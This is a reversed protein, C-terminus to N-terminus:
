KEYNRDKWKKYLTIQNCKEEEGVYKLDVLAEVGSEIHFKYIIGDRLVVVDKPANSMKTNTKFLSSSSTINWNGYELLIYEGRMGQYKDTSSMVQESFNIVFTINTMIEPVLGSKIGMEYVELYEDTYDMADETEVFIDLASKLLGKFKLIEGTRIYIDCLRKYITAKYIPDFENNKETIKLYNSYCKIAEHYNETKQYAYGLNWNVTEWFINKDDYLKNAYPLLETEAYYVAESFRESNVLEFLIQSKCVLVKPHMNGFNKVYINMAKSYYDISNEAYPAASFFTEALILSEKGDKQELYDLYLSYYLRTQEEGNEDLYTGYPTRYFKQLTDPLEDNDPNLGISLIAFQLGYEGDNNLRFFMSEIDTYCQYIHKRMQKPINENKSFVHVGYEAISLLDTQMYEELEEQKDISYFKIWIKIADIYYTIAEDSMGLNDLQRAICYKYCAEKPDFEENLNLAKLYYLLAQNYNALYEEFFRGADVLLEINTTDLKTCLTIYKAASDAQHQMKFKEFYSYCRRALEERDFQHVSEAHNLETKKQQILAGQQLHKDIQSPLDGRTKLLSDAKVLEGEEIYNSVQRYFDDMQDYDLKAYREAMESILKENSEQLAYLDQLLQQYRQQTIKNENRLADLEDEKDQLQRTMTRRIKRVKETIDQQLQEPSEMVFYQINSSHQYTKPAADADVLVYNKKTVSQVVYQVGKIPFSFSGNNRAAIDNRDKVSVVAGPLGVGPIHKGNVMRGRTKVCGQQVQTQALLTMCSFLLNLIIQITKM